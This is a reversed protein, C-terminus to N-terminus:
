PAVGFGHRRFVAEAEDSGLFNLFGVADAHMSGRLIAAPYDIQVMSTPPFTGVLVVKDSALFDTRYVIGFPVEGREVLALAARVNEAPVMQERMEYWQDLSDLAAWAYRGAPITEPDAIAVRKGAVTKSIPDPSIWRAEIAPTSVLVLENTLLKRRTGDRLLNRDELWDMWQEDASFILDAPAGAEVQRALSASGAFSLAPRAHGQEVWVDAVEELAQTLSSAALVVPGREEQAACSALLWAAALTSIAIRFPKIVNLATYLLIYYTWGQATRVM